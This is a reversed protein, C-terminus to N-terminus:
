WHEVCTERLPSALSLSERRTVLREISCFLLPM